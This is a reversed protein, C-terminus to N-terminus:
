KLIKEADKILIKVRNIEKEDDILNKYNNLANILNIKFKSDIGYHGIIKDLSQRVDLSGEYITVKNPTSIILKEARNKEKNIINIVDASNDVLIGKYFGEEDYFHLWVNTPFIYENNVEIVKKM